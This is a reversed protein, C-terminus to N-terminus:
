IDEFDFGCDLNNNKDDNLNKLISGKENLLTDFSPLEGMKKLAQVQDPTYKILIDVIKQNSMGSRFSILLHDGPNFRKLSRSKRQKGQREIGDYCKLSWTHGNSKIAIAYEQDEGKIQLDKAENENNGNKARRKAKQNHSKNNM